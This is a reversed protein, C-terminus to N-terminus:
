SRYCLGRAWNVHSHQNLKEHLCSCVSESAAVRMVSIHVLSRARVRACVCVCARVCVCVCARVCERACM